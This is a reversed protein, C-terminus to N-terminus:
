ASFRRVIEGTFLFELAEALSSKGQSNGGWLVTVTESVDFSQRGTGFSRFGQVELKRLRPLPM